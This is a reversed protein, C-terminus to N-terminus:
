RRRTTRPKTRTHTRSTTNPKRHPAAARQTLTVALAGILVTALMVVASILTFGLETVLALSVAGSAATSSWAAGAKRWEASRNHSRVKTGDLRNYSRVRTPGKRHNPM